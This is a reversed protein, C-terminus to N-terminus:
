ARERPKELYYIPVTPIVLVLFQIGIHALFFEVRLFQVLTKWLNFYNIEMSGKVESLKLTFNHMLCNTTISEVVAPRILNIISTSYQFAINPVWINNKSYDYWIKSYFFIYSQSTIVHAQKHQYRLFFCYVLQNGRVPKQILRPSNNRIQRRGLTQVRRKQEIKKRQIFKACLPSGKNRWSVNLTVLFAPALLQIHVCACRVAAMGSGCNCYESTSVELPNTGGFLM